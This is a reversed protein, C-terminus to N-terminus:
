DVKTSIRIAQPKLLRQEPKVWEHAIIDLNEREQQYVQLFSGDRSPAVSFSCGRFPIAAILQARRSM